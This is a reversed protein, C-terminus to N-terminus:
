QVVTFSGFIDSNYGCYMGTASLPVRAAMLQRSDPSTGCALNGTADDSDDSKDVNNDDFADDGAVLEAAREEQRRKASAM